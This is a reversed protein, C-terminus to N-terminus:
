SFELELDLDFLVASRVLVDLNEKGLEYVYTGNDMHGSLIYSYEYIACNAYLIIVSSAYRPEESYYRKIIIGKYTKGNVIIECFEDDIVNILASPYKIGDEDTLYFNVM